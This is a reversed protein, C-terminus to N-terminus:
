AGLLQGTRFPMSGAIKGIDAGHLAYREHVRAYFVGSVGAV